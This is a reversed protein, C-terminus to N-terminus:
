ENIENDLMNTLNAIINDSEKMETARMSLTSLSPVNTIYSVNTKIPLKTYIDMNCELYTELVIDSQLPTIDEYYPKALEYVVTIPNESLWQKFNTLDSLSKRIILKIRRSWWGSALIFGEADKGIIKTNDIFSDNLSLRNNNVNIGIEDHFIAFMTTNVSPLQPHTTIVWKESGDLVVKGMKHYHCLKGDVVEIRDGDLLPSSLNIIYGNEKYEKFEVGSVSTLKNIDIDKIWVTQTHTTPLNSSITNITSPTCYLMGIDSLKSTNIFMDQMDTIKSTNFNSLDLSTLNRCYAFMYSMNTVNSTNFNSTDLSTLNACNYFMHGMNIVKSTDFNGVDLTTLKSCDRFLEAMTTVNSTDWNSVDLSTLSGCNRFVSVLRTVNSTDWKSVDISTLLLCRYFTGHINTVNSTNWNSVDVSTLSQCYSFVDALNTIKETNWNCTIKTVNHCFRFMATIDTLENTNLDTVEILSIDSNTAMDGKSGFRMLTPLDGLSSITRTVLGNEDEVDDIFYEVFENNFTPIMSRWIKSDYVYEAVKTLINSSVVTWNKSALVTLTEESLEADSILIGPEKNTRDYFKTTALKEITEINNCRIYILKSCEDFINTTTVTKNPHTIDLNKIDVLELSHCDEFLSNVKTVVSTNWNALNLQKIKKCRGFLNVMDTVKSTDFGSVDLSTLLQCNYFMNSMNTVEGTDWNSVDLATVNNCAAFMNNMNTVKSTNWRSVDISTLLKCSNFLRDMNTVNRTDWNSVDLEPINICNVFVSSMNTVNSTNWNSVNLSELSSCCDFMNSITTVNRTDWNGLDGVTRLQTCHQFMFSMTTVNSTNFNSEDLSTLNKCQWFMYGMSTVNSTDFNSVDLSTLNNCGNFMSNMNIVNSTDFTSVDLSTLNYCQSFVAYMNKVKSTDFNSLDLSTLKQCYSFMSYMSTINSTNWECTISTLNKNYRFMSTCDTLGSTNMDLIELLSDTKSDTTSEGEAWVRGFRMLTPLDGNVSEISRTILKASIVMNYADSVSGSGRLLRVYKANNPATVKTDSTGTLSYSIINKDKDYWYYHTWFKFNYMIGPIVSYYYKTRLASTNDTTTNHGSGNISGNEWVMNDIVIESVSDHIEYKDSSFETNFEPILNEHTNADYRYQAVLDVVEWNKTTLTTLTEAPIKNRLSTVFKGSTTSSKNPLYELIVNLTDLNNLYVKELESNVSQLIRGDGINSENINVNNFNLTTLSSLRGAFSGMNTVKSTDFNSVDLSTLNNCAYFMAYMTTVKSTDFNSVDITTLLKCGSFMYSMYIINNTDWNSVDLSTLSQCGDFLSTTSVVKSTDWNSVDLESIPCERFAYSMDTVNSVDWDNANVVKLNKCNNFMHQMTTVNSTDLKIVELLSLQMDYVTQGGVGFRMMTPLTDCEITRIVYNSNESDIEDSVTYGKYGDNFVPILNSYVSSDFKYKCVIM